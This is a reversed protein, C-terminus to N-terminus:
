FGSRTSVKRSSTSSHSKDSGVVAMPFSGLSCRPYLQPNNYMSQPTSERGIGLMLGESELHRLAKAKLAQMSLMSYEEGTLGHVVFPCQGEETGLEDDNHHVSTALQPIIPQDANMKRFSVEVPIGSLPYSDLNEKSINLDEYNSHNLKLWELARAVKDRRVLMPTCKFDEETPPASGTYIVALVDSMESHAPPLTQYVLVTPSAWSITNAIMKAHGTSVRVLCCNHCVHAIMMSEAFSLDKLEDPVPGIWLNNCLAYKLVKKKLLSDECDRCIYQCSEDLVPGALGVIPSSPSTRESRSVGEKCLLNFDAQSNKLETLDGGWALRSDAPNSGYIKEDAQPVPSENDFPPLHFAHALLCSLNYASTRPMLSMFKGFALWPHPPVHLNCYQSPRLRFPHNDKAEFSVASSTGSTCGEMNDHVSLLADVYVPLHRLMLSGFLCPPLDEVAVTPCLVYYDDNISSPYLKVCDIYDSSGHMAQYTPFPIPADVFSDFGGLVVHLTVWAVSLVSVLIHIM